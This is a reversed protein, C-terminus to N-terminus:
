HNFVNTLRIMVTLVEIVVITLVDQIQWQKKNKGFKSLLKEHTCLKLMYSHLQLVSAAQWQLVTLVMHKKEMINNVVSVVIAM